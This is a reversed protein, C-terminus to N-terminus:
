LGAYAPYARIQEEIGCHGSGPDPSGLHHDSLLYIKWCNGNRDPQLIGLQQRAPYLRSYVLQRKYVDLHTYSVPGICLKIAEVIQLQPFSYYRYRSEPDVYAPKLIGLSDYYRLSKINVDSLKSFEGISLWKNKKM